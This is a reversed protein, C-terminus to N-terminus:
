QELFKIEYSNIVPNALLKECMIRAEEEAEDRSGADVEIRYLRATHVEGLNTLGLLQLTKKVNKGEPDAVGKKLGVKIEITHIM